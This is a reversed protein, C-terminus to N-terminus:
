GSWVSANSQETTTYNEKAITLAQAIQQLITSLDDASTNWQKQLAQYDESARGTWTSIMPALYSQLDSLETRFQNNISVCDQAAQGISEFTVLVQSM